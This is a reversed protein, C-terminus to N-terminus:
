ILLLVRNLRQRCLDDPGAALDVPRSHVDMCPTGAESGRRKGSGVKFDPEDFDDFQEYDDDRGQNLTQVDIPYVFDQYKAEVDNM